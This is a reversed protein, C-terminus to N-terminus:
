DGKRFFNKVTKRAFGKMAFYRIVNFRIFIKVITNPNIATKSAPLDSRTKTERLRYFGKCDTIM